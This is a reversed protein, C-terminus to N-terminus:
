PNPVPTPVTDICQKITSFTGEDIVVDYTCQVDNTRDTVIDNSIKSYNYIANMYDRLTVLTKFTGATRKYSKYADSITQPDSGGKSASANTLVCVDENLVISM